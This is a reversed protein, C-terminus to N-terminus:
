APVVDVTHGAGKKVDPVVIDVKRTQGSAVFVDVSVAKSGGAWVATGTVRVVGPAGNNKVQAGISMKYGGLGLFGEAQVDFGHQVVVSDPKPPTRGTAAYADKLAAAYADGRDTAVAVAVQAAGADARLEGMKVQDLVVTGLLIVCALALGAMLYATYGRRAQGGHAKVRTSEMVSAEALVTGASPVRRPPADSTTVTSQNCWFPRGPLPCGNGQSERVGALYRAIRGNCDGRWQMFPPCDHSAYGMGFIGPWPPHAHAHQLRQRWPQNANFIEPVGYREM